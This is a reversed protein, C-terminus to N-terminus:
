GSRYASKIARLVRLTVWKNAEGAQGWDVCTKGQYSYELPWCGSDDQKSLVFEFANKLRPDGGYGLFALAEVIQLIDTVYFVPFGFKWWSRNPTTPTGPYRATAPDISLLFDVGTQIARQILPTREPSPLKEFALM